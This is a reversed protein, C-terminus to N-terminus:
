DIIAATSPHDLGAGFRRGCSPCHRDTEHTTAQCWPCPLDADHDSLEIRLTHEDGTAVWRMM